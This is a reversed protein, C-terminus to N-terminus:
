VSYFYERIVPLLEDAEVPTYEPSQALFMHTIGALSFEREEICKFPVPPECSVPEGDEVVGDRM